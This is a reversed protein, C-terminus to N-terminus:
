RFALGAAYLLLTSGAAALAADRLLRRATARDRVRDPEATVDRRDSGDASVDYVGRRAFEVCFSRRGQLVGLFGGLLPLFAVLLVPPPLELARVAAVLVAAAAFGAVGLAYRGRREGPGVNCEGPRYASGPPSGPESELESESESESESEAEVETEAM